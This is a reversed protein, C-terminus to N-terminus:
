SGGWHQFDAYVVEYDQTRIEEIEKMCAESDEQVHDDRVKIVVILTKRM